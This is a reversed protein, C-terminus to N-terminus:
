KRKARTSTTRMCRALDSLPMPEAMPPLLMSDVKPASVPLTEAAGRDLGGDNEEDDAKREIQRMNILGFM